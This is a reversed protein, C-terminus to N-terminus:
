RRRGAAPPSSRPIRSGPAASSRWARGGSMSPPWRIGVLLLELLHRLRDIVPEVPEGASELGDLRRCVTDSNGCVLDRREIGAEGCIDLRRFEDDVHRRAVGACGQREHGAGFALEALDLLHEVLDVRRQSGLAICCEARDIGAHGTAAGDEDRHTEGDSGQRERDRKQDATDDRARNDLHGGREAADGLLVVGGGDRREALLVLDAAHSGGDVHKLVAADFGITEIVLTALGALRRLRPRAAEGVQRLDELGADAADNLRDGVARGLQARVRLCQGRGRLLGVLLALDDGGRRLLRRGVHLGHRRRGLLEAGRDGLDAPLDRM